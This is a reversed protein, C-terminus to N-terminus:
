SEQRARRARLAVTLTDPLVLLLADIVLTLLM